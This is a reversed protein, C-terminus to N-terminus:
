RPPNDDDGGGGVGGGGPNSSSADVPPALAVDMGIVVDGDAGDVRGV